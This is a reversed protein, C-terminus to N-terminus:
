GRKKIGAHYLLSDKCSRLEGKKCFDPYDVRATLIKDQAKKIFLRLDNLIEEASRSYTSNDTLMFDLRQLDRLIPNYVEKDILYKILSDMSNCVESKGNRCLDVKLSLLDTHVEPSVNISKPKKNEM